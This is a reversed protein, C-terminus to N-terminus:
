EESPRRAFPAHFWWMSLDAGQWSAWPHQQSRAYALPWTVLDGALSVPTDALAVVGVGTLWLGNGITTFGERVDGTVILAIGHGVQGIGLPVGVVGLLASRAVGGFPVCIGPPGIGPSLKEAPGAPADLNHISGCGSLAAVVLSIGIVFAINRRM